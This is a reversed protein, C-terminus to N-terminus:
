PFVLRYFQQATSTANTQFNVLGNVGTNNTLVPVWFPNALNTAVEVVYNLGTVSNASLQLTGPSGVGLNLTPPLFVTLTAVSSTAAGLSNTVIVQYPGALTTSANSLTLMSSSAGSITTNNVLWQYGLGPGTAQVNFSVTKGALVTQSQPSLTISPPQPFEFIGAPSITVNSCVVNFSVFDPTTLWVLPENTIYPGQNTQAFIYYVPSTAPNLNIGYLSTGKTGLLVESMVGEFTWNTVSLSPDPSSWVSFIEGSTNTLILNEGSFFGAGSDYAPYFVAPFIVSVPASTISGCPNSAVFDIANAADAPTVNTITFSTNTAGAVPVANTRWQFSLPADGSVSASFTANSIGPPLIQSAPPIAFGPASYTFVLHAVLSTVSQSPNSVIVDYGPLADAAGPNNNLYTNNTAGAIPIGNTRWQYSFPPLGNATVSFVAPSGFCVAQSQPGIISLPPILPIVEAWNTGARVTDITIGGPVGVGGPSHFLVMQLDPADVGGGDDSEGGSDGGTQAAAFPPEPTGPVPDIYLSAVDNTGFAYKMVILHTTNPALVASATITDSGESRIALRCGGGGPVLYLDIPDNPASSATSGSPLLCAVFQRNTPPVTCNVLASLYVAVGEASVVPNPSFNRYVNASGGGMQVLNGAPITAQLNSLVLNGSVVQVLPSVDGAWPPNSGLGTGAPYNFGEEMLPAAAVQYTFVMLLWCVGAVCRYVAIFEGCMIKRRFNSSQYNM